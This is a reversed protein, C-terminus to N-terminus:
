NNGLNQSNLNNKILALFKESIRNPDLKEKSLSICNKCMLNYEFNSLKLIKSIGFALDICDGLKSLHGTKNNVLDLAVGMKFSVVPTGCMMSQNIMMPGSDEISTSVFIDSAQFAKALNFHDLYGLFSHNFPLKYDVSLSRNGVFLLHIDNVQLPSMFDHLYHLTKQLESFGKRREEIKIAGFLIVKKNELINFYNRSLKKNRFNFILPNIPLLIKYFIKSNSFLSSKKLQMLQWESAAVPLLFNKELLNRKSLLNRYTRDKRHGFQLGPCFGCNKTYGDCDWAYHCGGTLISMDMMYWIIKVKTKEYLYYLDSMDLFNNPFLYIYFDPILNISEILYNLYQKSNNTKLSFMYYSSKCFIYDFKNKINTLIKFVRLFSRYINRNKLLYKEDLESKTIIQINCGYNMLGKMLDLAVIGSSIKPNASTLIVINFKKHRM